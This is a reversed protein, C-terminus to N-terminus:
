GTSYCAWDTTPNTGSLSAEENLNLGNGGYQQICADTFDIPSLQHLAVWTGNSREAGCTWSNSDVVFSATTDPFNVKCYTNVDIKGLYQHTAPAPAEGQPQQQTVPATVPLTSQANNIAISGAVIVLIVPAAIGGLTIWFAKWYRNTPRGSRKADRSMSWATYAGIVIGGVLTWLVVWWHDRSKRSQQRSPEEPGNASTKPRDDLATM